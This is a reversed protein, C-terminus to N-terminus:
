VIDSDGGSEQSQLRGQQIMIRAQNQTYGQAVLADIATADDVQESIVLGVIYSPSFAALQNGSVGQANRREKRITAEAPTVWESDGTFPDVDIVLGSRPAMEAGDVGLQARSVGIGTRSEDLKARDAGIQARSVGMESQDLAIGARTANNQAEDVLLQAEKLTLGARAAAQQAAEVDTGLLQVILKADDLQLARIAESDKAKGTLIEEQTKIKARVGLPLVNGEQGEPVDIENPREIGGMDFIYDRASRDRTTRAVNAKDTVNAAAAQIGLTEGMRAKNAQQQQGIYGRTGETVKGQASIVNGEANIVARTPAFTGSVANAVGTRADLVGQQYPLTAERANVVNGNADITRGQADLNSSRAGILARNASYQIALPDPGGGTIGLQPAPESLLQAKNVQDVVQQGADAVAGVVSAVGGGGPSAVAPNQNPAPTTGYQSPEMGYMDEDTPNYGVTAIGGRAMSVPGAGQIAPMARGNAPPTVQLTEPGMPNDGMVAYDTGTDEGIMHVPEPANVMPQEPPLWPTLVPFTPAILARKKSKTYAPM